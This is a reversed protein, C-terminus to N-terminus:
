MRVYTYTLLTCIYMHINLTAGEFVGRALLLNGVATLWSGGDMSPPQKPLTHLTRNNRRNTNLYAGKSLYKLILIVVDIYCTKSLLSPPIPLFAKPTRPLWLYKQMGYFPLQRERWAM